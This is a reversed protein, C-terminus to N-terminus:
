VPYGLDALTIKAQPLLIKTKNIIVSIITIYYISTSWYYKVLQIAM